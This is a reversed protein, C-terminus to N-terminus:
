QNIGLFTSNLYLQAEIHTIVPVLLVDHINPIHLDTDLKYTSCSNAEMFHCYLVYVLVEFFM